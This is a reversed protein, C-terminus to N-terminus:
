IKYKSNIQNILLPQEFMDYKTKYEYPNKCNEIGSAYDIAWPNIRNGTDIYQKLSLIDAGFIKKNQTWIFIRDRPIEDIPCLTIFDKDNECRKSPPCVRQIEQILLRRNKFDAHDINLAEALPVLVSKRPTKEHLSDINM